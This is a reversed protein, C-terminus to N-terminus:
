LNTHLYVLLKANYTFISINSIKFKELMFLIKPNSKPGLLMPNAVM